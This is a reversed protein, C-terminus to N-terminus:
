PNSVLDSEVINAFAVNEKVDEIEVQVEEGPEAGPVIIVYGRDVKAIGDGQDGLTEITVELIEGEKVPPDSQRSPASSPYRWEEKRETSFDNEVPVIAFQYPTATSLGDREVEEKPVSIVYRDGDSEISATFVSRLSDPIEVM